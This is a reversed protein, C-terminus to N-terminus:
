RRWPTTASTSSARSSTCPAPAGQAGIRHHLLQGGAHRAKGRGPRLPLGAQRLPRGLAGLPPKRRSRGGAVLNGNSLLQPFRERRGRHHLQLAGHRRAPRPLLHHPPLGAGRMPHLLRGQIQYLGSLQTNNDPEIRVLTELTFADPLPGHLTLTEDGVTYRSPALATGDAGVELLATRRRETGSRRGPKQGPQAPLRPPRAGRCPRRPHRRPARGHRDALGAPHLGQPLHRPPKPACSIEALLSQVVRPSIAVEFGSSPLGALDAGFEYLVDLFDARTIGLEAFAGGTMLTDLEAADIRGDAIMALILLRAKARASNVPYPRLGPAARLQRPFHEYAQISM